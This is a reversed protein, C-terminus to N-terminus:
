YKLNTLSKANIKHCNKVDSHKFLSKKSRNRRPTGFIRNQGFIRGFIQGISEASGVNPRVSPNIVSASPFHLKTTRARRVKAHTKSTFKSNKVSFIVNFVCKRCHFLCGFQVDGLPDIVSKNQIHLKPILKVTKKLFILIFHGATTTHQNLRSM